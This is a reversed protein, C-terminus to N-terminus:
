KPKYGVYQKQVQMRQILNTEKSYDIYCPLNNVIKHKESSGWKGANRAVTETPSYM